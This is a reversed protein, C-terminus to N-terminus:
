FSELVREIAEIRARRDQRGVTPNLDGYLAEHYPLKSTDAYLVGTYLTEHERALRLAEDFSVPASLPKVRPAYEAYTNNFSVCPQLIDVFAFGPHEVAQVMLQALQDMQASYGRAVFTAGSVLAMVLPNLPEEINGGPSTRSKYGKRSLPSFQGTTLSYVGNDHLFVTMDANRKAAFILHSIGEGMTDGDGVFSVVRLDPNALKVGQMTALARGHLSYFGSLNLYDFIKGHCGIGSSIIIRDRFIGKEELKLVAQKFSNWIGFNGCGQCWTNEAYTDLDTQIDTHKM